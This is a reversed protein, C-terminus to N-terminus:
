RASSRTDKKRSVTLSGKYEDRLEIRHIQIMEAYRTRISAFLADVSLPLMSGPLVFPSGVQMKLLSLVTMPLFPYSRLFGEVDKPLVCLFRQVRTRGRGQMVLEGVYLAQIEEWGLSGGFAFPGMRPPRYQIGEDDVTLVPWPFLLWVLAPLCFWGWVFLLARSLLALMRIALPARSRPALALLVLGGGLLFTARNAKLFKRREAYLVLPQPREQTM